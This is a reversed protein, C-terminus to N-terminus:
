LQDATSQLANLVVSESAVQPKAATTIVLRASPRTPGLVRDGVVLQTESPEGDTYEATGRTCPRFTYAMATVQGVSRATLRTVNTYMPPGSCGTYRGGAAKRGPLRTIGMGAPLAVEADATECIAVFWM